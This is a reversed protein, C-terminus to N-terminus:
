GKGPTEVGVGDDQFSCTLLGEPCPQALLISNCTSTVYLVVTPPNFFIYLNVIFNRNYKCHLILLATMVLTFISCVKDCAIIGLNYTENSHFWKQRLPTM